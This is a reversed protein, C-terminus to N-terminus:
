KKSKKCSRAPEHFGGQSLEKKLKELAKRKTKSVAQQTIDLLRAIEKEKWEHLYYYTIIGRENETLKMISHLLKEDSIAEKWDKDHFNTINEAVGESEYKLPQIVKDLKKKRISLEIATYHITSSIYKILLVEEYFDNFQKKLKQSIGRDEPHAIVKQYLNYNDEQKLFAKFLKTGALDISNVLSAEGELLIM